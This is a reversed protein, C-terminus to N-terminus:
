VKLIVGAMLLLFLIPGMDERLRKITRVFVMKCAAESKGVVEALEKYPMNEWVRLVIIERQLPSLKSLYQRVKKFQEKTDISGLIDHNEGIDWVDEVAVFSRKSRYYDIVSNRAIKFLWAQFTGKSADFQKVGKLAKIFTESTLDQATEKHHTKYYCFRYIKSVYIDYLTAFEKLKGKQCLNIIKQEQIHMNKSNYRIFWLFTVVFM